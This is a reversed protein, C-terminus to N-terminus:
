KGEKKRQAECETNISSPTGRLEEGAVASQGWTSIVEARTFTQQTKCGNEWVLFSAEAHSSSGCGALALGVLVAIAGHKLKRM